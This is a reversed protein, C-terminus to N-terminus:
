KDLKKHECAKILPECATWPGLLTASPGTYELQSVKGDKLRFIANCLGRGGLDLELSMPGKINLPSEVQQTQKYEFVEGDSLTERSDPVGACAILDERKLGILDHRAKLPTASCATLLLAALLWKLKIM